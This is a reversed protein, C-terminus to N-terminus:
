PTKRGSEVMMEHVSAKELIISTLCSNHEPLKIDMMKNLTCIRGIKCILFNLKVSPFRKGLTPLHQPRRIIVMLNPKM